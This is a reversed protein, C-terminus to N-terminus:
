SIRVVLEEKEIRYLPAKVKFRHPSIRLRMDNNFTIQSKTKNQKEFEPRPLTRCIAQFTLPLRRHHADHSSKKTNSM